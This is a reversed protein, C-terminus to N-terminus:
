RVGVPPRATEASTRFEWPLRGKQIRGSAHWPRCVQDDVARVSGLWAPFESDKLPPYIRSPSSFIYFLVPCVKSLKGRVHVVSAAWSASGTDDFMWARDLGRNRQKVSTNEVEPAHAWKKSAIPSIKRGFGFLKGATTAAVATEALGAKPIQQLCHRPSM